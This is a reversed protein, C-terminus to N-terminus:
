KVAQTTNGKRITRVGEGMIRARPKMADVEKSAQELRADWKNGHIAKGIAMLDAYLAKGYNPPVRIGRDKFDSYDRQLRYKGCSTTFTPKSEVITDSHGSSTVKQVLKLRKRM